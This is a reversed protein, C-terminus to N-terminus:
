DKKVPVGLVKRDGSRAADFRAAVVRELGALDRDAPWPRLGRRELLAAVADAQGIGVEFAAVGQPLLRRAAIEALRRYANLGDEGGDLALAPDHARVELALGAIDQSPIYPPNSAVVDFEGELRSDWDGVAITAREALGLRTLNDRAVEVAQPSLDVGVGRANPCERLLAALVAGTGVGFDVIRLPAARRDGLRRLITEILTETDPRPDLTAPTVRFSMSWFERRGLIRSVPEGALRREAFAALPGAAAGLARAGDLTLAARSLGTAEEILLRADLGAEEGARGAFASALARRAEDLTM